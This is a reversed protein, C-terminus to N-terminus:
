LRLPLNRSTAVRGAFPLTGPPSFALMELVIPMADAPVLAASVYAASRTRSPALTRGDGAGAEDSHGCTRPLPIAVVDAAGSTVEHCAHASSSSQRADTQAAPAAAACATRCREMALPFLALVLALTAAVLRVVRTVRPDYEV